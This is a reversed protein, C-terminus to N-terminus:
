ACRLLKIKKKLNKPKLAALLSSEFDRSLYFTKYVM